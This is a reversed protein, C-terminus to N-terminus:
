NTQPEKKVLKMVKFSSISCKLGSRTTIEDVDTCLKGNTPTYSLYGHFRLQPCQRKLRMTFATGTKMFLRIIDDTEIKYRDINDTNVCLTALEDSENVQAWVPWTEGGVSASFFLGAFFLCSYHGARRAGKTAKRLTTEAM